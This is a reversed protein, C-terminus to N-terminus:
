TLTSGIFDRHGAMFDGASMERKGEIQVVALGLLGDVTRVAVRAEGTRPLAVVEGVKGAEIENIPVAKIIKLRVGNWDTFCGPWPYYARVRRWLQVAPLNWDLRGDEKAVMRTYTAQTEDQQRPQIKGAVWSPITDTLLEAGLKALRESLSETTDDGKVPIEKQELIRGSDVKKEIMMITVGTIVDGNLIAAAVPSPGRYKPLLSPHINICDYKPIRLVSDPLIQGYAAVIIIDPQLEELASIEEANKFTEPQIIRLGHSVAFQKVSCPMLQQGRGTRKDPQTYVAIIDYQNSMLSQLAPLAFAPSGMFVAKM